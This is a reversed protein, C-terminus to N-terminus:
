FQERMQLPRLVPLTPTWTRQGSSPSFTEPSSKSPSSILHPRYKLLMAAKKSNGAVEDRPTVSGGGYKKSVLRKHQKHETVKPANTQNAVTSAKFVIKLEELTVTYTGYLASFLPKGHLSQLLESWKTGCCKWHCSM